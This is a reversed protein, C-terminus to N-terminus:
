SQQGSTQNAGVKSGQRKDADEALLPIVYQASWVYYYKDGDYSFRRSCLELEFSRRTPKGAPSRLGLEKLRKGVQHSTIGLQVGIETMSMYDIM